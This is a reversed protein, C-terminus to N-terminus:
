PYAVEVGTGHASPIVAGPACPQSPQLVLVKSGHGALFVYVMGGVLLTRTGETLIAAACSGFYGIGTTAGEYQDGPHGPLDPCQVQFDITAFGSQDEFRLPPSFNLVFNNVCARAATAQTPAICTAALALATGARAAVANM